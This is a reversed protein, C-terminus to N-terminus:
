SLEIMTHEVQLARLEETSAARRIRAKIAQLRARKGQAAQAAEAQVQASEGARFADLWRGHIRRHGSPLVESHLLGRECWYRVARSTVGLERAADGTTLMRSPGSRPQHPPASITEFLSYPDTHEPERSSFATPPGFLPGTPPM